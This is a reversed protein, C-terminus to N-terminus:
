IHASRAFADRTLNEVGDALVHVNDEIRIGGCPLLADIARWDIRADNQARLPELLMPIFYIGPEITFVQGVAVRRTNRLSAYHEPPPAIGGKDDTMHGGVDHTQLGLLHGLGHPLFVRTLGQAYAEDPSCRLVQKACLLEATMRHAQEHLELYPMGLKIQEILRRQADDLGQVLDAFLGTTAAYTRTIDAAYGAQRAGADILFSHRTQPQAQSQHQYHLVGAHENLAVINGYPLDRETQQSAQLYALHISYESGGRAFEAAAARHGLVAMATARRMCEVEYPSKAARQFELYDLAVAPNILAAHNAARDHEALLAPRTGLYLARGGALETVAAQLAPASSIIRVDFHQVWDGAPAAPPLHWYDAPQFYLLVPKNGPRWILVHSEQDILPLWYNLLPNSRFTQAQDDRFHYGHQGADLILVDAESRQLAVAHQTQVAALHSAYRAAEPM